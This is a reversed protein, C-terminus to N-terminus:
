VNRMGLADEICYTYYDDWNGSPLQDDLCVKDRLLNRIKMGWNFHYPAIWHIPNEKIAQKINEKDEERLADNIVIKAKIKIGELLEAYREEHFLVFEKDTMVYNPDDFKNQM